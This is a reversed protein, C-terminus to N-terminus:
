EELEAMPQVIEMPMHISQVDETQAMHPHEAALCPMKNGRRHGDQHPVGLGLLHQVTTLLYEHSFDIIHAYKELSGGLWAYTWGSWRSFSNSWGVM